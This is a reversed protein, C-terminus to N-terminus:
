SLTTNPFLFVLVVVGSVNKRISNDRNLYILRAINRRSIKLALFYARARSLFQLFNIAHSSRIEQEYLM